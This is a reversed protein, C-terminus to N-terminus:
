TPPLTQAHLQHGSHYYLLKETGDFACQSAIKLRDPKCDVDWHYHKGTRLSWLQIRDQRDTLMHRLALWDGDRSYSMWPVVLAGAVKIDTRGALALEKIPLPQARLAIDNGVLGLMCTCALGYRWFCATSYM